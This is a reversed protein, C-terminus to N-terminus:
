FIYQLNEFKIQWIYINKKQCIFIKSEIQNFKKFNIKSKFYINM